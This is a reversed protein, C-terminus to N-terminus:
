QCTDATTQPFRSAFDTRAVYSQKNAALVQEYGAQGVVVGEGVNKESTGAATSFGVPRSYIVRALGPSYKTLQGRGDHRGHRLVVESL